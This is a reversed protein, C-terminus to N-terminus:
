RPLPERVPEPRLKGRIAKLMLIRPSLPDRSEDIMQDLERILAAAQDDTLDLNM